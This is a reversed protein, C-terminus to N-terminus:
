QSPHTSYNYTDLSFNDDLKVCLINKDNRIYLFVLHFLNDKLLIKFNIESLKSSKEKVKKM